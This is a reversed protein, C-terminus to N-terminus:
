QKRRNNEAQRMAEELKSRFGTKKVEGKAFKEKNRELKERIAKEDVFAKIAFQQAVSLLNSSLYYFNLGAPYSNLMFMFMLPMIYSMMVMPGQMGTSQTQNNYYTVLLTSATMLVNFLSLHNGLGPFNFSFTILADYTSLDPAWLFSAQRLSIMNPFLFFMSLLIPMQLLLPICGSLPNIGLEQYLKLQERQMAQQDTGFKERLADMEPKIVRMKAMGMYSGYAMPLLVIRIFFVMFLIALGQVGILGEIFQYVPLLAYRNIVSVMSWGLYLNQDFDKGFAKLDEIKNPGFYYKFNQSHANLNAEFELLETGNPQEINKTRVTVGTFQLDSSFGTTFFSEKFSVWDVTEEPKEEGEASSHRIRDFGDVTSYYKVTSNQQIQKADTENHLLISKRKWKIIDSPQNGTIEFKHNLQYTNPRLTYLHKVTINGIKTQLVAYSSDTDTTAQHHSVLQHNVTSIDFNGSKTQLEFSQSASSDVFLYLPKKDFTLYETLRVSSPWAGVTPLKVEIKNNSLTVTQKPLTDSVITTSDAVSPAAAKTIALPSPTTNQAVLSSDATTPKVQPKPSLFQFYVVLVLFILGLGLAQNKDM